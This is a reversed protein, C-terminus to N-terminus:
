AVEKAQKSDNNATKEITPLNEVNGISIKRPKAAEPIERKLDIVLLGNELNAGVVKVHDALQFRREFAREAIGRHLYKTEEVNTTKDGKVTLLGEKIEIDLDNQAFGAVAIEIRYQDEDFQMVNYPPWNPAQEQRAATEILNAMRDFGVITRYLPSLDINRMLNEMRLCDFTDLLRLRPIQVPKVEDGDWYPLSKFTNKRM